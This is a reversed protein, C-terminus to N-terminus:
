LVRRSKPRALAAYFQSGISGPDTVV